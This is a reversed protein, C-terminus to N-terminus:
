EFDDIYAQIHRYMPVYVYANPERLDKERNNYFVFIIRSCVFFIKHRLHSPFKISISIFFFLLIFIGNSWTHGYDLKNKDDLNQKSTQKILQGAPIQTTNACFKWTMSCCICNKMMQCDLEELHIGFTCLVHVIERTHFKREESHGYHFLAFLVNM